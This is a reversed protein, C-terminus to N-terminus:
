NLEESLNTAPENEKVMLDQDGPNLNVDSSAEPDVETGNNLTQEIISPAQVGSSEPNPAQGNEQTQDTEPELSIGKENMMTELEEIKQNVITYEESSPDLLVLARQYSIRAERYADPQDIQELVVALNYHSGALDPKLNVAQTLINLAQQYDKQTVFVNALMIRLTPDNPNTEIASTYSQITWQAADTSVGIMNEYIQALSAWNQSEISDLTTAARAERVSQQLLSSVQEKEIDSIDAKNSLAIAILANTSAYRRRFIDLYPNLEVAKQQLEYAKVLDNEAIAKTSQAMVVNAAYARGTLYFLTTVGVMGIAVTLFLPANFSNASKHDFDVKNLVKLRLTQLQLLPLRHKENAIICAIAIAQITLIITNIPMLLQLILSTGVMFIVPKSTTLSRKQLKAFKYVFFVWSGFGLVGMTSLLTLPFNTAQSFISAWQNTNNMWIPKFASYINSYASPGAGILASRPNRITDLMISWSANLPPLILANEKGPLLNFAFIGAGIVLIPLTVAFLKNVKKTSIIETLIGVLTIGIIQLAIFPSGALNFVMSTPLNVNVLQNFLQAPGFGVMQLISLIVLLSSAITMGLLFKSISEKPILSGAFIAIITMAIYLGGMGLLSEVPYNSTFFTSATAALGFLLLANSIPSVTFRISKELFTKIVFLFLVLIAGFFLIYSKTNDIFNDTIPIVLLISAFATGLISWLSIQKFFTNNEM